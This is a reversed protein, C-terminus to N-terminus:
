VDYLMYGKKEKVIFKRLWKIEIKRSEAALEALKQTIQDFETNAKQKEEESVQSSITWPLLQLQRNILYNRQFVNKWLKVAKLGMYISIIILLVILGILVDYLIPTLEVQM